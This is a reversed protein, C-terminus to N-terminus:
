VKEIVIGPVQGTPQMEKQLWSPNVQLNIGKSVTIKMKTQKLKNYDGGSQKQLRLSVNKNGADTIRLTKLNFCGSLDLNFSGKDQGLNSIEVQTIGNCDSLNLNSLVNKGDITFEKLATGSVDINKIADNGQINITDLGNCKDCNLKNLNPQNTIKINKLKSNSCNIESVGNVGDIIISELKKFNSLNLSKSLGNVNHLEVIKCDLNAPTFNMFTITNLVIRTLGSWDDLYIGESKNSAVLENLNKCKYLSISKTTKEIFENIKNQPMDVSEIFTTAIITNNLTINFYKTGQTYNLGQKLQLNDLKAGGPLNCKNIEIMELSNKGTFNLENIGVCERIALEEIPANAKVEDLLSKWQAGALKIKELILKKLSAVPGFQFNIDTTPLNPYILWLIEPFPSIIVNQLLINKGISLEKIPKNTQINITHLTSLNNIQLSEIETNCNHLIIEQVGGSPQDNNGVAFSTVGAPFDGNIDIAECGEMKKVNDFRYETHSYQSIDPSSMNSFVNEYGKSLKAAPIEIIGSGLPKSLKDNLQALRINLNELKGKLNQLSSKLQALQQQLDPTKAAPRLRYFFYMPLKKSDFDSEIDKLSQFHKVKGSSDRFNDYKYWQGSPGSDKAYAWWHYNTQNTGIAFLEYTLDCNLDKLKKTKPDLKAITGGPRKFEIDPAIMSNKIKILATLKTTSPAINYVLLLVRPLKLFLLNSMNLYDDLGSQIGNSAGLIISYGTFSYATVNYSVEGSDSENRMCCDIEIDETLHPDLKNVEETIAKLSDNFSDHFSGYTQGAAQAWKKYFDELTVGLEIEDSGMFVKKSESWKDKIKDVLSIYLGPLSKKDLGKFARLKDNMEDLKSLAHIATEMPCTNSLHKVDMNKSYVFQHLILVTTITLTILKVRRGKLSKLRVM